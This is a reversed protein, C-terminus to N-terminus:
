KATTTGADRVYTAADGSSVDTLTLKSEEIQYKYTKSISKILVTGTMTITEEKKDMTYTGNVPVGLVTFKATGDEMFEYGVM